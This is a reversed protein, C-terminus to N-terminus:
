YLREDWRWGLDLPMDAPAELEIETEIIQTHRGPLDFTWAFVSSDKKTPAPNHRYVLKIRVDGIEPVPEEIRLRVPASGTNAAELRWIWRRTQKQRFFESAGSQDSVTKQKVSVFPSNGFYVDAEQGALAFIRKGVLAGDILFAAEGPPIELPQAFKLKAQVFAQPSRSPRALFLFEADWTDDKIKLRQRQGAGLTVKGMSWTRYTTHITEAAFKDATGDNAPAALLAAAPKAERTAKYAIPPKPKILWAPLDGPAFTSIPQLSALSLNIDTWDEGASQWIQADWSFVVRGAAPLAELRYLPQWGCGSVIYSYKIEADHRLAGTIFVRAEHVKESKGAAQELLAELEKILKETKEIEAEVSNKETLLRRTNKGIAAALQDAEAITKAKAKAQSQWFQLQAGLGGNQALLSKKENKAKDLRSRLEAVRNEDVRTIQKIQIDNIKATESSPVYVNLSEPNAQSPLIITVEHKAAGVPQPNIKVSGEVKASHPFLTVDKIAAVCLSAPAALWLTLGLLLAAWLCGPRNLRM